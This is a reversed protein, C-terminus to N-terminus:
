IETNQKAGSGLAGALRLCSSGLVVSRFLSACKPKSTTLADAPYTIIFPQRTYPKTNKFTKQPMATFCYDVRLYWMSNIYNGNIQTILFFSSLLGQNLM